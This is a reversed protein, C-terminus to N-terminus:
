RDVGHTHQLTQAATCVNAMRCSREKDEKEVPRQRSGAQQKRTGACRRKDIRRSRDVDNKFREMFMKVKSQTKKKSLTRMYNNYKKLKKKHVPCLPVNGKIIDNACETLFCLFDANAIIARRLKINKHINLMQLCLIHREVHESM